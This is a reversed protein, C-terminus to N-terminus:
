DKFNKVYVKYNLYELGFKNVVYKLINEVNVFNLGIEVVEGVIFDEKKIIRIILYGIINNNEKIFVKKYGILGWVIIVVYM